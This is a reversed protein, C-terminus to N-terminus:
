GGMMPLDPVITRPHASERIEQRATKQRYAMISAQIDSPWKCNDDPSKPFNYKKYDDRWERLERPNTPAPTSTEGCVLNAEHYIKNARNKKARSYLMDELRLMKNSGLPYATPWIDAIAQHMPNPTPSFVAALSRDTVADKEAKSPVKKAATSRSEDSSAKKDNSATSLADKKNIKKKIGKKEKINSKNTAM